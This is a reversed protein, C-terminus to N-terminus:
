DFHGVGDSKITGPRFHANAGIHKRLLTWLPGIKLTKQNKPLNSGLVLWIKFSVSIAHALKHCIIAISLKGLSFLL